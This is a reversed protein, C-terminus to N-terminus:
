DEEGQPIIIGQSAMWELSKAKWKEWMPGRCGFLGHGGAPLELYEVAVGHAKLADRLARSNDPPVPVDDKAHALFAPPTQHTVQQENSFFQVLDPKPNPGLLNQKSGEHTKEGMTVVPYVLVMFDPRCSERDIPDTAKPDGADFHTGATSAVHGGASFGM